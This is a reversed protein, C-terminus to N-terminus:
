KPRVIASKDLAHAGFLDLPFGEAGSTMQEKVFAKLTMPHVSKKAEFQVDHEKLIEVLENAKDEEGRGFDCTVKNKIIDDHGTEKLWDFAKDANVGSISGFYHRKITIKSGSELKFETLGMEAMKEPLLKESISRLQDIRTKIEIELNEIVTELAIQEQALQVVEKLGKDTPKKADEAFVANMDQTM